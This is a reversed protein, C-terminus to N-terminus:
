KSALKEIRRQVSFRRMEEEDFPYPSDKDAMWTYTLKVLSIAMFAIMYVVAVGWDWASALGHSQVFYIYYITVPMHIFLVAGLGPNYFSKLKVNGVVGHIVLQGIAALMPALGLWILSPFFVPILCFVYAGLLNTLMASNQNLPYRDPPADSPQLVMNMIAPEGGPFRYEEYQHVLMAIFNLLLLRQLVPLTKWAVALFAACLVAVVGGLDYWHRRLFRLMGVGEKIM